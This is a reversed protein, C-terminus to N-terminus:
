EPTKGGDDFEVSATLNGFDLLFGQWVQRHESEGAPGGCHGAEQPAAMNIKSLPDVASLFRGCIMTGLESVLEGASPETSKDRQSDGVFADRLSWAASSGVELKLRGTRSGYFNVATVITDSNLWIEDSPEVESFCMTEVVHRVTNKLTEHMEQHNENQESM